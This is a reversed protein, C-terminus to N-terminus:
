FLANIANEFDAPLPAKICVEKHTVPHFFSVQLAHLMCRPPRYSCRFVKGYQFDGLIAHGMESMHVRIQHTRGTEPFCRVLTAESGQKEKKWATIAHMGKEKSTKGLFKQGELQFKIGLYNDIIGSPKDLIGDVIAIYVKNILRKKFLEELLVLFKKSKAFILVGTTEKDLRHALALFPLDQQIAKIFQDKDSATSAPKDYILLHDDEFLIRKPEFLKQVDSSIEILSIHDDANVLTSAFIEPRENIFCRHNDILHKLQKGSYHDGLKLKLFAQLKLGAESQSVKWEQM